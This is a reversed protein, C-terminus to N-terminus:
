HIFPLDRVKLFALNLYREKLNGKELAIFPGSGNKQVKKLGGGYIKIDEPNFFIDNFGLVMKTDAYFVPHSSDSWEATKPSKVYRAYVRYYSRQPAKKVWFQIDNYSIYIEGGFLKLNLPPYFRALLIFSIVSLLIFSMITIMVM